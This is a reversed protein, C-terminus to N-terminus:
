RMTARPRAAGVSLASGGAHPGRGPRARIEGGEYTRLLRLVRDRGSPTKLAQRPTRDGLMPIPEDAWTAYQQEHFQQSIRTLQEPAFEAPPTNRVGKPAAAVGTLDHSELGEKMVAMPDVIERTLFRISSGAVRALWERGDDALRQTRAFPKLRDPRAGLNIALLSRRPGAPDGGPELKTWGDERTGEVDPEADLARALADWDLVEYHDTTLLIPEGTSADVPAPLDLPTVCALLWRGIVFQAVTADLVAESLSEGSGLARRVKKLAERLEDPLELARRHPFAYVAGSLELHDRVPVLRAGCVDGRVLQESGRREEVWPVERDPHGLDRLRLGNGPDSELVEYLGVPSRTMAELFAREEALMV